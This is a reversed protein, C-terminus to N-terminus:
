ITTDNNNLYRQIDALADGRDMTSNAVDDDLAFLTNNQYYFSGRLWEEAL